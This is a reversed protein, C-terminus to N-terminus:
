AGGKQFAALAQTIAAAVQQQFNPSTLPGADADPALRGVEIAVAPANVSRLARVPAEEPLDAMAGPIQAFQQQLAQALLRSQELHAQQVRVWSVFLTQPEEGPAPPPSSSQYTYVSLRPTASGLDGAHFTLFFAAGALNAAVERQEFSPNVDGARTLVIRYKQTSLVASRVRAVLQAVLDKELVGDRSRAGTEEAGHGADLVVVPLPPGLPAAPAEETVTARPPQAAPPTATPPQQPPPSQQAVAPPPKLVDALLIKGGEALVPYFNLGGTTPSLILKPAGDQDDFRVESVYPDQFRFSSELPEVPHDGLFMVWKGNRAITRVTVKDTFQVTLRAGNPVQDLRVTFSSPRVDGIFIRNAGLQYEVVQHTLRPVISTLFDIPVVWQGDSVRVPDSLNIWLKDVRVKREERRLELQVKGFWVKLSNRKEQLGSVKGLLNLIQLLPLYKANQIVELVLVQRGNPLYFIFNDSRLARTPWFCLALGLVAAPILLRTTRLLRLPSKTM